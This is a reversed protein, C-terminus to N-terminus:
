AEHAYKMCKLQTFIYIFTETILFIWIKNEYILLRSIYM